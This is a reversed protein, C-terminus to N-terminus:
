RFETSDARFGVMHKGFHFSLCIEVFKRVSDTFTWVSDMCKTILISFEVFKRVSDVFKQVSDSWLRLLSALQM